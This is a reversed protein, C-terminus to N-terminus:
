PTSSAQAFRCKRDYVPPEGRHLEETQGRLSGGRFCGLIYHLILEAVLVVAAAVYLGICIIAVGRFEEM